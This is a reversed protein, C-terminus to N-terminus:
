CRCRRHRHRDTSYNGPGSGLRQVRDVTTGLVQSVSIQPGNSSNAQQIQIESDPTLQKESGDFFTLLGVGGSSTRIRDGPGVTMGDRAAGFSSGGGVAVEVPAALVSLTAGAAAQATVIGASLSPALSTGGLSVLVGLAVLWYWGGMARGVLTM